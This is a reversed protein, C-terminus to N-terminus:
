VGYCPLLSSNQCITRRGARRACAHMLACLLLTILMPGNSSVELHVLSLLPVASLHPQFFPQGKCIRRLSSRKLLCYTHKEKVPFGIGPVCQRSDWCEASFLLLSLLSFLGPSCSGRAVRISLEADKLKQREVSSILM